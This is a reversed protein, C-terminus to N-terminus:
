IGNPGDIEISKVEKQEVIGSSCENKSFEQTGTLIASEIVEGKEGKIRTAGKQQSNSM